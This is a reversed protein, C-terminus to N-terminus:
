LTIIRRKSRLARLITEPYDELYSFSVGSYGESALGETGLRNYDFIAMKLIVPSLSVIDDNHTYSIATETAQDLLLTLLDDKENTNINLMLKMKDLWM